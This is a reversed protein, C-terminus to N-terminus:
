RRKVQKISKISNYLGMLSVPILLLYVKDIFREKPYSFAQGTIMEAIGSAIFLLIISVILFILFLKNSLKISDSFAKNIIFSILMGLLLFLWLFLENLKLVLTASWVIIFAIHYMISIILVSYKTASNM